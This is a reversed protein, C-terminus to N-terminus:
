RERGSLKGRRWSASGMSEWAGREKIMEEGAGSKSEDMGKEM